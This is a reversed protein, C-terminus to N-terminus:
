RKLPRRGSLEAVIAYRADEASKEEGGGLTHPPHDSPRGM